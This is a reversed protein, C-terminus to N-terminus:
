QWERGSFHPVHDFLRSVPVRLQQGTKTIKVEVQNGKVALVQCRAQKLQDSGKKTILTWAIAEVVPWQPAPETKTVPKVPAPEAKVLPKALAPQAAPQPRDATATAAPTRFGFPARYPQSLDGPTFRIILYQRGDSAARAEFIDFIESGPIADLIQFAYLKPKQAVNEVALKASVLQGYSDIQDFHLGAETLRQRVKAQFTTVTSM